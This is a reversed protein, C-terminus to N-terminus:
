LLFNSLLILFVRRLKTTFNGVTPYYINTATSIEEYEERYVDFRGIEYITRVEFKDQKRM